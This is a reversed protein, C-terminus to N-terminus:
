GVFEMLVWDATDGDDAPHRSVEAFGARAWARIAGDNWAYPDVTVRKRGREDLLHRAM